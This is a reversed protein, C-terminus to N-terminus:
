GIKIEIIFSLYISEYTKMQCQRKYDLRPLLKKVETECVLTEICPKQVKTGKMKLAKTIGNSFLMM